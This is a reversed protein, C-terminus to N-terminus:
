IKMLEEEKVKRLKDIKESFEDTERQIEKEYRTADDESIAKANAQKKVEEMSEHRIQRLMVKGSESKQNILKVMEKRREESLPPLNIRLFEGDVIPNLGANAEQIGKEIEHSISIDFPTITITHPDQVHITALEMIKLKQTGGYANIAINEILAPSAKGTRITAFDDNMVQLVKQMKNRTQSILPDM